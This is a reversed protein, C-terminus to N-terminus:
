DKNFDTILLPDIVVKSPPKVARNPPAILLSPVILAFRPFTPRPAPFSIVSSKLPSLNKCTVTGRSVAVVTTSLSPM